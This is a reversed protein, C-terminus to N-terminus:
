IAHILFSYLYYIPVHMVAFLCETSNSEWNHHHDSGVSGHRSFGVSRHSNLADALKM